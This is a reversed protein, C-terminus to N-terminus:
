RGPVLPRVTATAVAVVRKAARDSLHLHVVYAGRRADVVAAADVPGHRAPRLFHLACGTTIAEEAGTANRVAAVAAADALAALAGGHLIRWPNRLRDRLELSAVVDGTGPTIAFFETWPTTAAGPEDPPRLAVPRRVTPPGGAPTLVSSTLVGAAVTEGTAQEVIVADTVVLDRGVRLVQSQLRLTGRHAPRVIRLHLNTSVVWRPLAALGACLGAVSDAATLLAAATLGGAPSSAGSTVPLSGVMAPPREAEPPTAEELSIGLYAGVHRGAGIGDFSM